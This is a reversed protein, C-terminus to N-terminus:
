GDSARSTLEHKAKVILFIAHRIGNIFASQKEKNEDQLINNEHWNVENNLFEIIYDPEIDNGSCDPCLPIIEDRCKKCYVAGPYKEDSKKNHAIILISHLVSSLIFGLAFSVIINM